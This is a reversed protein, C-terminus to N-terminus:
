DTTEKWGEGPIWRVPTGGELDLLDAPDDVPLGAVWGEFGEEAMQSTLAHPHELSLRPDERDENRSKRGEIKVSEM